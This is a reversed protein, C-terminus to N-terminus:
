QEYRSCASDLILSDKVLPTHMKESVVETKGEATWMPGEPSFVVGGANGM